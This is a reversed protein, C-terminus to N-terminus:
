REIRRGPFTIHIRTTKSRLIKAPNVQRRFEILLIPTEVLCDFVVQQCLAQIRAVDSRGNVESVDKQFCITQRFGPLMKGRCQLDVFVTRGRVVTETLYSKRLSVIGFSDPIKFAGDRNNGRGSSYM